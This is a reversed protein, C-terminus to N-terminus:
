NKLLSTEVGVDQYIVAMCNHFLEFRHASTSKEKKTSNLNAILIYQRELFPIPLRQETEENNNHM